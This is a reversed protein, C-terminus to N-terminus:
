CCTCSYNCTCTTEKYISLTEHLQTNSHLQRAWVAWEPLTLAVGAWCSPLQPSGCATHTCTHSVTIGDRFKDAGLFNKIMRIVSGGQSHLFQDYVWWVKGRSGGVEASGEKKEGNRRREQEGERRGEMWRDGRKM